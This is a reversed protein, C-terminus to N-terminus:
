RRSETEARRFWEDARAFGEENGVDFGRGALPVAGIGEDDVLAQVVPVDDREEGPPFAIEDILTFFRPTFIVRGYWRLEKGNEGNAAAAGRFSGEGKTGISAVRLRGEEVVTEVGGCNGFGGRDEPAVPLLGATTRRTEHFVPTIEDLAVGTYINDPLLLAFPEKEMERWAVAMADALGTPKEQYVVDVTRNKGDLGLRDREAPVLLSDLIEEKGPRLVLLIRSIGGQFAEEVVHAVLPRGRLLVTEKADSGSVSALRTGLGACPVIAQRIREM